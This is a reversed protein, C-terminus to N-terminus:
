PAPIWAEAELVAEILGTQPNRVPTKKKGLVMPVPEGAVAIRVTTGEPSAITATHEVWTDPLNCLRLRMGAALPTQRNPAPAPGGEPADIDCPGPGLNEVLVEAQRFPRLSSTVTATGGPPIVATSWPSQTRGANTTNM